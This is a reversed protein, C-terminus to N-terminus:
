VVAVVFKFPPVSTEGQGGTQGDTGRSCFPIRETDEVIIAQDMEYKCM